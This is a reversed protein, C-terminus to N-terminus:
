GGAATEDAMARCVRALLLVMPTISDLEAYEDIRHSNAGMIGMGDLTPAGAASAFNGDSAGGTSLVSLPLGIREGEARVLEWLRQAKEGPDMPPRHIRGDVRIVAGPLFPKRGLTSFFDAVRRQEQIRSIRVDVLAEAKEPIINVKDGGSMVTVQLATGADNRNLGEIKLIQHALEAVANVGKEPDAGAHASRGDVTIRFRGVGKRRIVLGYGPRCDEFVLAHRSNAALNMIWDRSNESGTEEDGNFAAGISLANLVGEHHLAELAHLVVLLGGKMDCVGPGFARGGRVSFPRRSAEGPPFVTDMHGLLLLDLPRRGPATEALLCPVRGQGLFVVRVQMGMATFRAEFFRAIKEIGQRNGTGSDVNVLTELDSVFQGYRSRIYSEM